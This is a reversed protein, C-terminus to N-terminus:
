SNPTLAGRLKFEQLFYKSYCLQNQVNAQTDAKDLYEQYSLMSIVETTILLIVYLYNTHASTLKTICVRTATIFKSTVPEHCISEIYDIKCLTLIKKYFTCFKM